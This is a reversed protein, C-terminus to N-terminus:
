PQTVTPLEGDRRGYEHHRTQKVSYAQSLVTSQAQLVTGGIREAWEIVLDLGTRGSTVEYEQEM